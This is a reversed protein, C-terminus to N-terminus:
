VVFLVSSLRNPETAGSTPSFGESCTKRALSEKENPSYQMCTMRLQLSLVFCKEERAITDMATESFFVDSFGFM